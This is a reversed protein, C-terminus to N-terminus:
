IIEFLIPSLVSYYEDSRDEVEQVANRLEILAESKRFPM